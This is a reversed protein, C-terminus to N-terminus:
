VGAADLVREAREHARRTRGPTTVAAGGDGRSLRAFFRLVSSKTTTLGTPTRMTELKVGDKGVTAWRYPVSWHLPRRQGKRGRGRPMYSQHPLDGLLIPQEGADLDNLIDGSAPKAVPKTTASKSTSAM